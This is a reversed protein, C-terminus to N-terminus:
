GNAFESKLFQDALFLAAITKGDTIQGQVIMNLCQNFPLEFVELNEDADRQHLGATLSRALYIHIVENSYGICPHTEGLKVWENASFGTEEILERKGTQLVDENADIKGAPLEIFVHRLPYRYQHELIVNGNTLIPVVIVAGPHLVYERETIHGNFLRVKDCKVTLLKGQALIESSVFHETLDPKTM